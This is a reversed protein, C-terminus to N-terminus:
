ETAAPKDVTQKQRRYPLFSKTAPRVGELEGQKWQPWVGFAARYQHAIWGPQFQKWEQIQKLRLYEAAKEERTARQAKLLDEDTRERPRDGDIAAFKARLERIKELDICEPNEVIKKPGGGGDGGDREEAVHQISGCQPCRGEPTWHRVIARCQLCTHNEIVRESTPNLSFDFDDDPLGHRILNGAHDHIVCHTKGTEPSLRLGRGIMQLHLSLSLTPRALIVVEANPADFGETLVGVSSLIQVRGARFQTLASKRVDAKSHCDVHEATFGAKRFQGVLHESHSINVPFCIAPRGNCRETYEKVIGDILVDTDCLKALQEQSFEGARKKVAHLDPPVFARADFPTLYGSEIMERPTAGVVIDEFIDGLDWGDVRWPTATLGIMLADSYHDLAKRATPSQSHHCEDYIVLGAPPIFRGTRMRSALTQISCIQVRCQPRFRSNSGMYISAEIQDFKWLKEATQEALEVRHVIFVVNKDPYKALFARIIACAVVTKGGGTPFVLLVRKKGAAIKRYVGDIAKYQFGRLKM